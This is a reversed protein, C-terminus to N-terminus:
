TANTDLEFSPRQRSREGTSNRLAHWRVQRDTRGRRVACARRGSSGHTKQRDQTPREREPQAQDAQVGFPALVDVLLVFGDAWVEHGLHEDERHCARHGHPEREAPHSTQHRGISGGVQLQALHIAVEFPRDFLTGPVETVGGILQRVRVGLEGPRVLVQTLKVM